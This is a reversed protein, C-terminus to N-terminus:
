GGALENGALLAGAPSRRMCAPHARMACRQMSRVAHGVVAHSQLAHEHMATPASAGPGAQIVRRARRLPTKRSRRRCSGTTASSSARMARQACTRMRCAMGRVRPGCARMSPRASSAQMGCPYINPGAGSAGHADASEPFVHRARGCGANCGSRSTHSHQSRRHAAGPQLCVACQGRPWRLTKDQSLRPAAAAAPRQWSAGSGAATSTRPLPSGRREAGEFAERRGDRVHASPASRNSTRHAAVMTARRVGHPMSCALM